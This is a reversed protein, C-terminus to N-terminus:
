LSVQTSDIKISDQEVKPTTPKITDSPISDMYVDSWIVKPQQPAPKECSATLLIGSIILLKKM